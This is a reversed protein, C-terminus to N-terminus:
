HSNPLYPQNGPSKRRRFPIGGYQRNWAQGSGARSLGRTSQSLGRGPLPLGSRRVLNLRGSRFFPIAGSRCASVVPFAFFCHPSRQVHCLWSLWNSRSYCFRTGHPGIPQLIITFKYSILKQLTNSAMRNGGKDTNSLPQPDTRITNNNVSQPQIGPTIAARIM